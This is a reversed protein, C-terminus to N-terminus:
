INSVFDVSEVIRKQYEEYMVRTYPYAESVARWYAEHEPLWAKQASLWHVIRTRNVIKIFESEPIGSFDTIPFSNWITQKFFKIKYRFVVNLADQDTSYKFNPSFLEEWFKDIMNDSRLKRLNMLLIGTNTYERNKGLSNNEYDSGELASAYYYEDGMDMEYLERISGRIMLDSDLWLCREISDDLIRQAFFRYLSYISFRGLDFHINKQFADDIYNWEIYNNNGLGTLREVVTRENPTLDKYFIHIHCNDNHLFLTYITAISPLLFKSNFSMVIHMDGIYKKNREDVIKSPLGSPILTSAQLRLFTINGEFDLLKAAAELMTIVKYSHIVLTKEIVEFIEDTKESAIVVYDFATDAVQDLRELCSFIDNGIEARINSQSFTVYECDDKMEEFFVGASNAYYDDVFFLVKTKNKEM